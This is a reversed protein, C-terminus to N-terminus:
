REPRRLFVAHGKVSCEPSCYVQSHHGNPEVKYYLLMEFPKGCISCSFKHIPYDIKM